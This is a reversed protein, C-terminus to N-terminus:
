AHISRERAPQLRPEAIHQVPRGPLPVVLGLDADAGAVDDLHEPAEVVLGVEAEDHEGVERADVGTRLHLDDVV